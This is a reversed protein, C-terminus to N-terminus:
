KFEGVVQELSKRPSVMCRSKKVVSTKLSISMSENFECGDLSNFGQSETGPSNFNPNAILPLNVTNDRKSFGNQSLFSEWNDEIQSPNSLFLIKILGHHFLSSLSNM